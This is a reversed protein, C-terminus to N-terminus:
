NGELDAQNLVIADQDIKMQAIAAEVAAEPSAFYGATVQDRIFKELEPTKLPVHM